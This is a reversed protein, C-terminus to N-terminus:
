FFQQVKSLNKLIIGRLPSIGNQVMIKKDEKTKQIVNKISSNSKGGMRMKILVEPIYSINLDNRWLYRLMADYDASINYELNFGGLSIYHQAKMYFTPHPPMWGNKMKNKNFSGSKWSRIIKKINTQSVYDLDGYAADIRENSLEKSIKSLVKEDKYFDDSHLFGIIDGSAMKIGKNLADYIGQDKESIIKTIGKSFKHIVELTADTSGGDVIIHELNLYDQDNVSKLTSAITKESNFTATIVSIKKLNQYSM